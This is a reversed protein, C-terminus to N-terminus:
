GLAGEIQVPRYYTNGSDDDEIAPTPPSPPPTPPARGSEQEVAMRTVSRREAASLVAVIREESVGARGEAVVDTVFWQFAYLWDGASLGRGGLSDSRAALENLQEIFGTLEILTQPEALRSANAAAAQLTTVIAEALTEGFLVRGRGRRVKGSDDLLAANATQLVQQVLAVALHGRPTEADLSFLTEPNDMAIKVAAASVRKWDKQTLLTAHESAVFSAVGQAIRVVEVNVDDPLLMGPTQAAQDAVIGVLDLFLTKDIRSQFLQPHFGEEGYADLMGEAIHTAIRVGLVAWPEEEGDGGSGALGVRENAWAAMAMRAENVLYNRAHRRTVDVGIEILSRALDPSKKVRQHANITGVLSTLLDRGLEVHAGKGRVFAEPAAAVADLIVPYSKAVFDPRFIARIDEADQATTVFTTMLAETVVEVASAKGKGKAENDGIGFFEARREHLAELVSIAVPGQLAEKVREVRELVNLEDTGPTANLERLPSMVAKVLTQVNENNSVLDPRDSAIQLSTTVLLDAIRKHSGSTFATEVLQDRNEAIYGEIGQAVSGVIAEARDGLGLADVRFQLYVLAATSMSFVLDAMGRRSADEDEWSSIVYHAYHDSQVETSGGEADWEERFREVVADMLANVRDFPATEAIQLNQFDGGFGLVDDYEQKLDAIREGGSQLRRLVFDKLQRMPVPHPMVVVDKLAKRMEVQRRVSGGLIFAARVIALVGGASISM